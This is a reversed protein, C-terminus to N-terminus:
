NLFGLITQIFSDLISNNKTDKDKTDEDEIDEVKISEGRQNEENVKMSEEPEDKEEVKTSKSSKSSEKSKEDAKSSGTKSDLSSKASKAAKTGGKKGSKNGKNKTSTSSTPAASNDTPSDIMVPSKTTPSSSTPSKMTPSATMPSSSTPSITPSSSTPSVSPSLTNFVLPGVVVTVPKSIAGDLEGCEAGCTDAAKKQLTAVFTGDEIAENIADKIVAAPPYDELEAAKAECGSSGCSAKIDVKQVYTIVSGDRTCEKTDVSTVEQSPDDKLASVVIAFTTEDLADIV